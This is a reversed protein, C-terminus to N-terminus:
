YCHITLIPRPLPIKTYIRQTVITRKNQTYTHTCTHGRSHACTDGVWLSTHMDCHTHLNDAVRPLSNEGKGTHPGPISRLSNPRCEPVLLQPHPEAAPEKALLQDRLEKGLVAFLSGSCFSSKLHPHVWSFNPLLPSSIHDFYMTDM